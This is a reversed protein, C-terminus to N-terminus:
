CFAIYTNKFLKEWDEKGSPFNIKKCSYQDTFTKLNSIREPNNHIEEHHLAALLAYKFCEENKIKSNKTAKKRYNIIYNIM